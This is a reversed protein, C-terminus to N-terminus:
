TLWDPRNDILSMCTVGAEAKQLESVDVEIVNFGLARLERATRLNGAPLLLHEGARVCNAAAPESVLIPEVGPFLSPDILNPNVLIKSVGTGHKGAFSVASKLHLCQPAEITIVRRHGIVSRLAEVGEANTRSSLGVFLQHGIRLVDGGDLTGGSLQRVKFHPSLGWATSETESARSLAGPRTIIAVDRLLIATDEVFVGDPHDPLEPLRIVEFGAQALAQEYAAHQQAARLHDIPQRKLHTLVCEAIRPSVARTFARRPIM